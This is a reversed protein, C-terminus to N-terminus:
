PTRGDPSLARVGAALQRKLGGVRKRFFEDLNTATIALFRVRELLPTREDVAQHFVRWNFDLWSLERNFFLFPHDQAARRPVTRPSTATPVSFPLPEAHAGNTRKGNGIVHEVGREDSM